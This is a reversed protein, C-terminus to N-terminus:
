RIQMRGGNKAWSYKIKIDEQEDIIHAITGDTTAMTVDDEGEERFVTRPKEM